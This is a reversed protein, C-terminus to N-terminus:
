KLSDFSNDEGRLNLLIASYAVMIRLMSATDSFGQGSQIAVLYIILPVYQVLRAKPNHVHANFFIGVFLIVVALLSILGWTIMVEQTANHASMLYGYKEQYRQLGVGILLRDIHQSMEHFYYEMIGLRSNTIDAVQFRRLFSVLYEPILWVAMHIIVASGIALAVISRFVAKVSNCCFLAYLIIGMAYVLIFVRSQTMIGLLSAGCFSLLYWKKKSKRYLLLCFLASLLCLFGLENPNYSVQMSESVIGLQQRTDGFRVGLLLFESLSYEKLMQGLVSTMAMWFGFLYGHLMAINDYDENIDVMRLFSFLFIGTFRLYEVISFLGRFASFLEMLLLIVMSCFGLTQVKLRKQKCLLIVLAIATIYTCSIGPALPTLFALLCYIRSKDSLLCILAAVSIFVYRSVAMGGIDRLLILAAIFGILLLCPKRKFVRKSKHQKVHTLVCQEQM